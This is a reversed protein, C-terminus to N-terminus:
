SAWERRTHLGPPMTEYDFITELQNLGSSALSSAYGPVADFTRITWAGDATYLVPCSVDLEDTVHSLPQGTAKLYAERRTWCRFFEAIRSEADLGKLMENESHTFFQIGVNLFNEDDEIREVDIGVDREIAFAFLAIDASRACNFKPVIRGSEVVIPKGFPGYAFRLSAPHQGSYAGLLERLIGRACVFHDRAIRSQCREARIREGAGLYSELMALRACNKNLDACWVHVDNPGLQLDLSPLPLTQM